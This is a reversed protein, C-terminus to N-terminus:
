LVIVEKDNIHLNLLKGKLFITISIQKLIHCYGGVGKVFSKFTIVPIYNALLLVFLM